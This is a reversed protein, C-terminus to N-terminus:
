SYLIFTYITLIFIYLINLSSLKLEKVRKSIALMCFSNGIIKLVMEVEKYKLEANELFDEQFDALANIIM